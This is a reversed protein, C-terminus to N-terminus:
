DPDGRKQAAFRAQRKKFEQDFQRRREAFAEQTMSPDDEPPGLRLLTEYLSPKADNAVLGKDILDRILDSRTVGLAKARADLAAVQASELYIQTRHMTSM